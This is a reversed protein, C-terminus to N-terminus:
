KIVEVKKFENTEADFTLKITHEFFNDDDTEHLGSIFDDWGLYVAVDPKPEPKIRWEYDHNTLPNLNTLSSPTTVEGVSNICEVEKGEAIAILVDHWKHKQTM